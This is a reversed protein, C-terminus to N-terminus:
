CLGNVGHPPCIGPFPSLALAPAGLMGGSTPTPLSACSGLGTGSSTTMLPDRAAGLGLALSLPVPTAAESGPECAELLSAQMDQGACALGCSGNVAISSAVAM